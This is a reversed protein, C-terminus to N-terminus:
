EPTYMFGFCDVSAIRHSERSNSYFRTLTFYLSRKAHACIYTHISM